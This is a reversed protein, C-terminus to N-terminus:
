TLFYKIGRREGTRRIKKSHVGAAAVRLFQGKSLKLEKRLKGGQAGGKSKGLLVLLQALSKDIDVGSARGGGRSAEAPASAPAAKAPKAAKAAKPAAPAKAAKAAKAAPAASDGAFIEALPASRIAQLLHEAFDAALRKITENLHSM